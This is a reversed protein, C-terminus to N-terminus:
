DSRKKRYIFLGIITHLFWIGESIVYIRYFLEMVFLKNSSFLFTMSSVIFLLAFYISMLLEAYLWKPIEKKKLKFLKRVKRNPMIYRKPYYKRHYGIDEIMRKAVNICAYCCMGSMTAFLMIVSHYGM